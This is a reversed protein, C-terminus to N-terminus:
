LYRIKVLNRLSQTLITSKKIFAYKQDVTTKKAVCRIEYTAHIRITDLGNKHLLIWLLTTTSKILTLFCSLKKKTEVSPEDMFWTALHKPMEEGKRTVKEFYPQRLLFITMRRFDM